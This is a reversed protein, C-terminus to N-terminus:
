DARGPGASPGSTGRRARRFKSALSRAADPLAVTPADTSPEETVTAVKDAVEVATVAPAATVAGPDIIRFPALLEAGLVKIVGAAPIALLAGLLGFLEVGLLVTLLVTLPRLAVTRAMITTQLIHNEFQQYVIYFALTAVGAPVSHLFAVGITPIAGLTAGVLPILDAFGVWLALVGRFPVGAIWLFVYTFVGAIVSITLNGAVYGSVARACDRGLRRLRNQAPPSLMGLGGALFDPGSTLMLFTLVAITLIAAITNFVSRAIDLAPAGLDSVSERLRPQNKEFWEDIDYKQVLEGVAGKGARADTVYDPFKDVFETTQDVIPRIFAYLLAVLTALGSLFVLLASIGRRIHLRRVLFDVPPALVVAFFLAVMVWNIIRTTHQVLWLVALTALVLGITTLITRIPVPRREERQPPPIALWHEIPDDGKTPDTPVANPASPDSM